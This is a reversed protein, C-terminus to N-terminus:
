RGVGLIVLAIELVILCIIIIELFESQAHQAQDTAFQYIEGVSSLKSEVQQQWDALGLRLAAGRYVRAYFADGMIKLANNSRDALERVDVLLARLRDTQQLIARRRFLWHPRGRAIDWRYIADLDFDLRADYTRLEVLQTNAFELINEVAEAGERSDFVIAADWQIVTLDTQFYSFRIRLAEDEELASLPKDEGSILSALAAKYSTLLQLSTIGSAAEAEYILYDELLAEHPKHIAPQVQKLIDSLLRHATQVVNENQRWKRTFEAFEDWSGRFSFSFRLAVTGYDYLKAHVDVLCGDILVAPLKLILPPAAFQIHSPSAVARLDLQAKEFGQSQLKSLDITDAVDFICYVHFLGRDIPPVSSPQPEVVTQM